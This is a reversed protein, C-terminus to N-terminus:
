PGSPLAASAKEFFKSILDAFATKVPGDVALLAVIIGILAIVVVFTLIAHGYEEILAKM